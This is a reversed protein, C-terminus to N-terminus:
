RTPIKGSSAHPIPLIYIYVLVLYTFTQTGWDRVPPHTAATLCPPPMWSGPHLSFRRCHLSTGPQHGPLQKTPLIIVVFHTLTLPKLIIKCKLFHSSKVQALLLKGAQMVLQHTHLLVLSFLSVTREESQCLSQKTKPYLPSAPLPQSCCCHANNTLHEQRALAKGRGSILICTPNYGEHFLSYSLTPMEGPSSM